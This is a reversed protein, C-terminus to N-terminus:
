VSGGNVNEMNQNIKYGFGVYRNYRGNILEESNAESLYNIAEAIPKHLLKNIEAADNKIGHRELVDKIYTRDLLDKM